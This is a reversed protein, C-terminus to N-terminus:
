LQSNTKHFIHLKYIGRYLQFVALTLTLYWDILRIDLFPHDPYLRFLLLIAVCLFSGSFVVFSVVFPSVADVKM